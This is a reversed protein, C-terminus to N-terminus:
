SWSVETGNPISLDTGVAVIKPGQDLVVRNAQLSDAKGDFLRRAKVAIVPPAKASPQAPAPPTAILIAAMVAALIPLPSKM